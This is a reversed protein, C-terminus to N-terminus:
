RLGLLIYCNLITKDLKKGIKEMKKEFNRQLVM